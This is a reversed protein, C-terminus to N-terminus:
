GSQKTASEKRGIRPLEGALLGALPKFTDFQMLIIRLVATMPAALCMGVIGWLLGWFSLALLVTVPHLNLEKGMLKPEVVNGITIQLVGPIAVVLIVPWPEQFQAVAIPIPLLTSVISG